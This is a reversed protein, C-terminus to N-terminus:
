FKKLFDVKKVKIDNTGSLCVTGNKMKAFLNREPDKEGQQISIEGGNGILKWSM